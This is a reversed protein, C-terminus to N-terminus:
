GLPSKQAHVPRNPMSYELVQSQIDAKVSLRRLSRQFDLSVFSPFRGLSHSSEIVV